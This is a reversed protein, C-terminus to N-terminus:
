YIGQKAISLLFPQTLEYFRQDELFWSSDLFMRILPRRNVSRFRDLCSQVEKESLNSKRQEMIKFISKWFIPSESYHFLEIFKVVSESPWNKCTEVVRSWVEPEKRFRLTWRENESEPNPFCSLVKALVQDSFKCVALSNFVSLILTNEYNTIGFIQEASSNVKTELHKKLGICEYQHAFEALPILLKLYNITIEQHYIISLATQVIEQPYDLFIEHEQTDEFYSFFTESENALVSKSCHFVGGDKCNLKCDVYKGFTQEKPESKEQQSQKRRKQIHSVEGTAQEAIPVEEEEWIGSM